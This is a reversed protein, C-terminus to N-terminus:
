EDDYRTEAGRFNEIRLFGLVNTHYASRAQQGAHDTAIRLVAVMDNGDIQWDAYQWSYRQDDPHYAIPREIRWNYLDSSSILVLHNRFAEPETQKNVLSWYRKSKTDYRITFKSGGGPFHIVDTEPKHELSMAGERFKVLVATDDRFERRLISVLEGDPSVVLNGELWTSPSNPHALETQRWNSGELLNDEAPISLLVLIRDGKFEFGRWLRDDYEIVPVAAGHYPRDDTLLGHDADIPNSWTKGHDSSYRIVVPGYEGRTGILYLAGRHLFLASWFQNHLTSQQQWTDGKDRSIYVVTSNAKDGDGFYDHSALYDENELVVISPSGIFNNSDAPSHVIRTITPELNGFATTFCLGIFLLVSRAPMYGLGKCTM